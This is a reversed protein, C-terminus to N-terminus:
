QIRGSAQGITTVLKGPASRLTTLKLSQCLDSLTVNELVARLAQSIVRQNNKIVCCAELDCLGTVDTSCETLAIRGELITIIEALSIRRSDRALSYGGKAGRQSVLLGGQSLQKLLRSVTPLPLKSVAALDRATRLPLDQDRAICTMLVLGYDTLKSLRIM